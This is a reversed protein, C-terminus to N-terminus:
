DHAYYAIENMLPLEPGQWDKLLQGDNALALIAPYKVVDYLKAVEAGRKSSLDLAEIHRSPEVRLFDRVYEEVQRTHESNSQFLVVLKM